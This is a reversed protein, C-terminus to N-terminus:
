KRKLSELKELLERKNKSGFKGSTTDKILSSLTKRNKKLSDLFPKTEKKIEDFYEMAKDTNYRFYFGVGLFVFQMHYGHLEHEFYWHIVTMTIWNWKKTKDLQEWESYWEWVLKDKLKYQKKKM